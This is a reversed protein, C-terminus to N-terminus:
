IFIIYLFSGPNQHWSKNQKCAPFSPLNVDRLFLKTNKDIFIPTIDSLKLTPM